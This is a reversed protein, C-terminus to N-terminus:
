TKSRVPMCLLTLEDTEVTVPKLSDTIQLTIDETGAVSAMHALFGGNFGIPGDFDGDCPIREDIRGLDPQDITLTATDGDREIVVPLLTKADPQDILTVRVLADALRQTNFTLAHPQDKPVLQQYNPYDGEVLVTSWTTGDRRISARHEGVELTVPGKADRLAATIARAPIIAEDLDVDDGLRAVGLRFSDTAAVRDGSFLVGCLVPRAQDLSAFTAVARVLAVHDAELEFPRGPERTIRPWEEIPLLRVTAKTAQGGAGVLLVGEDATLEVVGDPCRDVYSSLLRAPAVLMGPDTVNAEVDVTITLDLDSCCLALGAQAGNTADIHVGNLVPLHSRGVAPLVTRLAQKLVDREIRAKM